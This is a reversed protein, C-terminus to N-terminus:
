KSLEKGRKTLLFIVNLPDVAILCTLCKIVEKVQAITLEVKKGEMLTVAQALENLNKM